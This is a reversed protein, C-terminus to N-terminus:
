SEKTMEAQLELLEIQKKIIRIDFPTLPYPVTLRGIGSGLAFSFSQIQQGSDRSVADAPQTVPGTEPLQAVSVTMTKTSPESKRVKRGGPGRFKSPDKQYALFEALSTKARSKYTNTTGPNAHHKTAWRNAVADINALLWAPDRPEEGGLVSALQDVATARVRATSGGYMGRDSMARLWAKVEDITAM